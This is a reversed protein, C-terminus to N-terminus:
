KVGEPPTFLSALWPATGDSRILTVVYAGADTPVSVSVVYTSTDDVITGGGVVGHAPIRAPDVHQYDQLAQATLLPSLEAWWTAADLQPRSFARLAVEAANVASSRQAENWAQPEPADLAVEGSEEDTPTDGPM